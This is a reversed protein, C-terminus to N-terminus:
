GFRARHALTTLLDAHRRSSDFAQLTRGQVRSSSRPVEVQIEDAGKGRGTSAQHPHPSCISFTGSSSRALRTSDPMRSSAFDSAPRSSALRNRMGVQISAAGPLNRPGDPRHSAAPARPLPLAAMRLIWTKQLLGAERLVGSSPRWEDAASGPLNAVRAGDATRTLSCLPPGIRVPGCAKNPSARVMTRTMAPERAQLAQPLGIDPERNAKM